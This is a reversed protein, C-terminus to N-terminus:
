VPAVSVGQVGHRTILEAVRGSKITRVFAQLWAAAAVRQVPVGIAQQVATFRGELVRSGPLRAQDGALRPRLGALADLQQDVFLQYSAELGAARHLTAHQLTRRLYMDYATKDGVAIRVGPRDVDALTRIPSDGRVLYSAEIELYAPTFAIEAARLPDAGILGVDWAGASVAAALDGPSPYPVFSVPVGLAAAIDRGIDPAIGVAEGGAPASQVLLFNSLNLAVRLTGGPAMEARLEPTVAPLVPLAPAAASHPAAPKM